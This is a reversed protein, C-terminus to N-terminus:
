QVDWGNSSMRDRAYRDPWRGKAALILAAMVLLGLGIHQLIMVLWLVGDIAEEGGLHETHMRYAVPLLVMVALFFGMGQLLNGLTASYKRPKPILRRLIPFAAMCAGGLGAWVWAPPYPALFLASAGVTLVSVWFWRGATDYLGQWHGEFALREGDNRLRSDPQLEGPLRLHPLRREIEAIFAPWEHLQILVHVPMPGGAFRLNQSASNLQIDQIDQWAVFAPMGWVSYGVLGYGDLRYRSRMLMVGVVPSFGGMFLALFVVPVVDKEGVPLLLLMFLMFGPGLLLLLPGMWWLGSSLHFWRAEGTAPPLARQRRIIMWAYALWVGLMCALAILRPDTTADM